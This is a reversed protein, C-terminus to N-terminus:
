PTLLDYAVIKWSDDERGWLLVLMAPNQAVLNLEFASAYFNGYSDEDAAAPAEEGALRRACDMSAAFRDPVSLLTYAEEEAHSVIRLTMDTPTIGRIADEIVEVDGVTQAVTDMGARLEGIAGEATEILPAESERFLDVCPHCRSSVASLATDYDKEILWATLFDRSSRIFDPDGEVRPPVQPARMVEIPRLDPIVAEDEVTPEVEYSVIKWDGSERTWLLSVTAGREGKGVIYFLSQYYSTPLRMLRAIAQTRPRNRYGCDLELARDNSVEYLVFQAHYPNDLMVRLGPQVVRVGVTVDGLDRSPPIVENAQKLKLYIYFEAMGPHDLVDQDFDDELGLCLHARESIYAMAADPEQEVLWSSLFDRVAERIGGRAARPRETIAVSAVSTDPRSIPLGFWGVWWAQLGQWRDVHRGHNSGARVDSNASSLHGNFLAAPFKSSRYDVDIDAMTGDDSMSFQISPVPGQQRFNVPYGQHYFSNDGRRSFEQSAELTPLANPALQAYLRFQADGRADKLKGRVSDMRAVLDLADGLPQGDGDALQSNMLAHTVAEFTTKASVPLLDYSPAPDLEEQILEAYRGFWDDVLRRQEPTLEDYRASFVSSVSESEQSAALSSSSYITVVVLGAIWV